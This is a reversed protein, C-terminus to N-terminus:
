RRNIWLGGLSVLLTVVLALSGPEPVASASSPEVGVQWNGALITVDSGDVKGDNNFDGDWWLADASQWNAALITVDAGDVQGDGNADGPIGFEFSESNVTLLQYFSYTPDVPDDQSMEMVGEISAFYQGEGGYGDDSIPNYYSEWPSADPTDPCTYHHYKTDWNRSSFLKDSNVYDAVWATNGNKDVIAYNDDKPGINMQDILVNNVKVLMSQYAAGVAATDGGFIQDPTVEVPDPTGVGRNIGNDVNTLSSDYYLVDNGFAGGAEYVVNYLTVEDGVALSRILSNEDSYGADIVSIGSYLEGSADQIHFRGMHYNMGEGNLEVVIGTIEEVVGDSGTQRLESISIGFVSGTCIAVLLLTTLLTIRKM